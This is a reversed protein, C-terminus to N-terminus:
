LLMSEYPALEHMMTIYDAINPAIVDSNFVDSPSHRELYRLYATNQADDTGRYLVHGSASVAYLSPTKLVIPNGNSSEKSSPTSQHHGMWDLNGQLWESVPVTVIISDERTKSPSQFMPLLSFLAMAALSTKLNVLSVLM